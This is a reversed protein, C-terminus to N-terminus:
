QVVSPETKNLISSLKVVEDECLWLDYPAEGEPHFVIRYHKESHPRGSASCYARDQRKSPPVSQEMVIGTDCGDHPIGDSDYQEYEWRVLDGVNM